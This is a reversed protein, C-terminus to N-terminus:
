RSLGQQRRLHRAVEEALLRDSEVSRGQIIVTVGGGGVGVGAGTNAPADNTAPQAPRPAGFGGAAQAASEKLAAAREKLAKTTAETKEKLRDEIDLLPELAERRLLPYKELLRDLAKEREDDVALLEQKQALERRFNEAQEQAQQNLANVTDAYNALTLGAAQANLKQTILEGNVEELSYSFSQNALEAKRAADANEQVGEAAGAAAEGASASASGMAALGEAAKAANIALQETPTVTNTIVQRAADLKTELEAAQLSLQAFEPSGVAAASLQEKIAKLKAELQNISQAAGDASGGVGDVSAVFLRAPAPMQELGDKLKLMAELVTRYPAPVLSLALGKYDTTAQKAAAASEKVAGTLAKTQEATLGFRKSLDALAEDSLERAGESMDRFALSLNDATESVGGALGVVDAAVGTVAEVAVAAGGKVTDYITAIAGGVVGAVDAIKQLNETTAQTFDAIAQTAEAFDFTKLFEVLQATAGTTFATFQTVLNAFEPSNAFAALAAGAETLGDALPKLIPQLFQQKLADVQAGLKKLSDNFTGSLADAAKQTADKNTNVAATLGKLAGGGDALLALLAERPKRGLSELVVTAAASDRNLRELITSLSAGGLGLADLAQGAKSGSDQFQDLITALRKSADAGEINKLALTGLLAVTQEFSLNAQQAALGINGLGKELTDATTGAATAAATLADAVQGVSSTSREGFSDLIGGLGAAAAAADTSQVKAYALVAGLSDIAQQASFGDRAMTLLAASAEAATAGVTTAAAQVAAQLAVQEDATAKTTIAVRRMTEEYDAAGAVATGIGEAASKFANFGKLALEAGQNLETLNNKLGKLGEGINKFGATIKDLLRFELDQVEKAM